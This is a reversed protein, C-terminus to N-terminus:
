QKKYFYYYFLAIIIIIFFLNKLIVNFFLDNLFPIQLLIIIILLTLILAIFTKIASMLKNEIKSSNNNPSNSNNKYSNQNINNTYSDNSTNNFNSAYTSTQTSKPSSYNNKYNFSTNSKKEFLNKFYALEKKLNNNEELILKYEESSVFTKELKEDYEKRKSADSLVDYAENIIKIMNEAEIKESGSKLDPHYKKVLTKYAKDIIDKSAESDVQLIKYYNDM